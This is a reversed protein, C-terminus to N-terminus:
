PVEYHQENAKDPLFAVPGQRTSQVFEQFARAHEECNGSEQNRLRQRLLKRIGARVLTDPVLGREIAEIAFGAFSEGSM